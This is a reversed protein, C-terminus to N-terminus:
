KFLKDLGFKKITKQIASGAKKKFEKEVLNKAETLDLKVEPKDFTGGLNIGIPLKTINETGPVFGIYGNVEPSLDGKNVKFDIRYDMALSASQRGSITVDQGAIRTTFPAISLGGDVIKFNTLFDNVKVNTFLDKRFYKGIEGFLNSGILEINKTTISGGGNVTNFQPTNGPGIKGNLMISSNFAGTSEGAIPLFHRITGSSQYATPLDFDKIDLKFDFDPTGQKPTSYAGSVLIKGSLLNMSLGDLVIQRAIITVKGTINTINIREYLAKSVTSQITLNLNEPIEVPKGATVSDKATPNTMLQNFNLYGSRLSMNGTLIGNKLLYAWYNTLNGNATFDSEGMKGTLNTLAIIKPNLGINASKIELTQPLNKSTFSFDQLSIKGDTKFNEYQGKEISSYKGNFDITADVIGKIDISDIPIAQKLSAFDIIGKLNGRLLPDSVPTAVYLAATIPNGAISANFKELEIKTLDFVGQPKSITASVEIKEIEKPLKPYKIQGGSIRLAINFGPITTESYTGKVFGGFAIEGKTEVGSLNKQYQVPIFGLLDTLSSTPSKFSLDFDKGTEGLTFIGQLEIPLKNIVLKNQLFTFAMKDFDSQLGGQVGVKMNSVYHSGNYEFNVSDAEGSIQLTSNNGQLAGSLEFNGKSLSFLMPSTEDEFTLRADKIGIKKLKITTGKSSSKAPQDTTTKTIDWNSKGSKNVVLNIAPNQLNISTITLGESSWLSSLNVTTSLLDVSLLRTQEFTNIGTVSLNKLAINLQPFSQFLSLEVGSFDIKANISNNAEAKIKQTIKNKFLFPVTIMVIVLFGLVLTAIIFGKKM